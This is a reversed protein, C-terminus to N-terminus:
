ILFECILDELHLFGVFCDGSEARFGVLNADDLDNQDCTKCTCTTNGDDEVVCLAHDQCQVGM